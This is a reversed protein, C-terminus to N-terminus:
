QGVYFCCDVDTGISVSPVLSVVPVVLRYSQVIPGVLVLRAYKSVGNDM